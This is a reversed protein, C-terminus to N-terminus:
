VKEHNKGRSCPLGDSGRQRRGGVRVRLDRGVDRERSPLLVLLAELVPQRELRSRGVVDLHREPVVGVRVAHETRVLLTEDDAPVAALPEDEVRRVAHAEDVRGPRGVPRLRQREHELRTRVARDLRERQGRVADAEEGRQRRRWRLPQVVRAPVHETQGGAADVIRMGPEAHLGNGASEGEDEPSAM